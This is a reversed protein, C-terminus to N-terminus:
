NFKDFQEDFTNEGLMVSLKGCHVKLVELKVGQQEVPWLIDADLKSVDGMFENILVLEVLKGTVGLDEKFHQATAHVTEGLCADKCVVEESVAKGFKVVVLCGGGGTEPAVLPAGDHKCENDVVKGNLVNVIDVQIMKALSEFLLVFDICLNIAGAKGANCEIPVVAWIMGLARAAEGHQAIDEIDAGPLIMGHGGLALERRVLMVFDNKAFGSLYDLNIRGARREGCFTDLSKLADNTSKDVVCTCDVVLEKGSETDQTGM